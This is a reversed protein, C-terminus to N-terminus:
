CRQNKRSGIRRRVNSSKSQNAPLLSSKITQLSLHFCFLFGHNNEFHRCFPIFEWFYAIEEKQYTNKKLVWFRAGIAILLLVTTHLVVILLSLSQCFLRSHHKEKKKNKEIIRKLVIEIRILSPNAAIRSSHAASAQISESEVYKKGKM